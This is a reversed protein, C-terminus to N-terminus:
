PPAGPVTPPPLDILARLLFRLTLLGFVVPLILEAWWGPVAGALLTGSERDVAILGLSAHCLLAAIVAAFGLSVFRAYRRLRGTLLRGLVDLSIHKDHRAAALAGLLAVWLVLVRLVPDLWVLGNEALRLVIQLGALVVLALAFVSILLNELRGIAILWRPLSTRV